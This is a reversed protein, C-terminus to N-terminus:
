AAGGSPDEGGAEHATAHADLVRPKRENAWGGTSLKLAVAGSTELALQYLAEWSSTSHAMWPVSEPTNHPTRWFVGTRGPWATLWAKVNKSRDDVFMDAEYSAKDDAHHVRDIGFHLALWAESEARWWPNTGWPTEWPTTVCFVDGLDRLQRVGQRAGPYSPLSTVFGRRASIATMVERTEDESLGLAEAFNFATVDLPSYTRGTVEKVIALAGVTFNRLVGDADLAIQIKRM